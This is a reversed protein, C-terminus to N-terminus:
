GIGRRAGVSPQDPSPVILEAYHQLLKPVSTRIDFQGEARRRAAASMRRRMAADDLLELMAAALAAADGAPVLRAADEGPPFIEATGGVDTAVVPVGAAAAELLVRGLPEQRAPHVLLTLESLLTAVDNRFGLFHVRRALPGRAVDHLADEFQRSEDKESHRRGVIVYRIDPRREAIARAAALLM